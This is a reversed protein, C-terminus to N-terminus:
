GSSANLCLTQSKTKNTHCSPSYVMYTLAWLHMIRYGPKGLLTVLWGNALSDYGNGVPKWFMVPAGPPHEHAEWDCGCAEGDNGGTYSRIIAAPM